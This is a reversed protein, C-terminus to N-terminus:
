WRTPLFIFRPFTTKLKSFDTWPCIEALQLCFKLLFFLTSRLLNSMRLNILKKHFTMFVCVCTCRCVIVSPCQTRYLSNKCTSFGKCKSVGCSTQERNASIQEHVAKSISKQNKIRCDLVANFKMNWLFFANSRLCKIYRLSIYGSSKELLITFLNYLFFRCDFLM